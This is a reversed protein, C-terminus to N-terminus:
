ANAAQFDMQNNAAKIMEDDLSVGNGDPQVEFSSTTKGFTSTGEPDTQHAPDTRLLSVPTLNPGNFQLPALDHPTFNPTEANAVNDALLQQRQQHWQMRTRLMSFISVDSM